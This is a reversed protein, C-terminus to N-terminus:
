SKRWNQSAKGSACTATSVGGGYALDLCGGNPVSRLTGGSGWRWLRATGQTCDGVFVAQGLMNAVLCAGSQKNVVKLSNNEASVTTWYASPDTCSGDDASGYVQILCSGNDANKLRFAGSSPPPAPDGGGTASGSAGSGSSGSSEGDGTGSSGPGASGGSGDSGGATDQAGSGSAAGGADAGGKAADPSATGKGQPKKPKEPAPTASASAGSSPTPDAPATVSVSPTSGAAHDPGTAYPLNQIALTAGVTTVVVPM